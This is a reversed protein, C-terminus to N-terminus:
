ELTFLAVTEDDVLAIRSGAADTLSIVSNQGMGASGPLSIDDPDTVDLLMAASRNNIQILLVDRDGVRTFHMVSAPGDELTISALTEMREPDFLVLAENDLAAAGLRGDDTVALATVTHELTLRGAPTPLGPTLQLPL